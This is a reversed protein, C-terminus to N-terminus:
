RPVGGVPSQFDQELLVTSAQVEGRFAPFVGVMGVIFFLAVCMLVTNKLM